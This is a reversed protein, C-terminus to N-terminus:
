ESSFLHVHLPHVRKTTTRQKKQNQKSMEADLLLRVADLAKATYAIQLATKGNNDTLDVNAGADLLLRISDVANREAALHLATLGTSTQADVNPGHALVLQILPLSDTKVAVYLPMQNRTSPITVRAGHELLYKAIEINKRYIAYHLPTMDLEAQANVNAKADVLIKVGDINKRAVALHLATFRDKNSANVNAGARLLEMMSENDSTYASMILPTRMNRDRVDTRAGARLLVRTGEANAFHLATNGFNNQIDVNAGKEILLAMVDARDEISAEQLATAAQDTALVENVNADHELLLRVIEIDAFGAAVFLVPKGSRTKANVDAGREVLLKILDLPYKDIRSVLMETFFSRTAFVERGSFNAPAIRIIFAEALPLVDGADAIIKADEARFDSKMALIPVIDANKDDSALGVIVAWIEDVDNTELMGSLLSDLAGMARILGDTQPVGAVSKPVGSKIAQTRERRIQREDLWERVNPAPNTISAVDAGQEFLWKVVDLHGNAATRRVAFDNDAHIDAGQEVLWKVVDLHGNGAAWRVAQNNGARINAGREVLWKVVDLHGNTAAYRVAHDNDARINAGGEVLWKVVDLHGNGAAWRVAQNNGARINAGGEVLWKVVDLHGRAAALRVAFDNDAHIDAGQDVLWSVIDLSSGGFKLYQIFIATPRRLSINRQRLLTYVVTEALPLREEGEYLTELVADADFTEQLFYSADPNKEVFDQLTELIAEPDTLSRDQLDLQIGVQELVLLARVIPKQSPNDIDEQRVGSKIARTRQRMDQNVRSSDVVFIEDKCDVFKRSSQRMM